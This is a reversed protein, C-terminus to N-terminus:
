DVTLLRNNRRVEEEEENRITNRISKRNLIWVLFLHNSVYCAFAPESFGLKYCGAVYLSDSDRWDMFQTFSLFCNKVQQSTERAAAEQVPHPHSGATEWSTCLVSYGPSTDRHKEWAVRQWLLVCYTPSTLLPWRPFFVLPFAWSIGFKGHGLLIVIVNKLPHPQPM